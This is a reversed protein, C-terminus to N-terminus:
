KDSNFDGYSGVMGGVSDFGVGTQYLRSGTYHPAHSFRPDFVGAWATHAVLALSLVSLLLLHQRM